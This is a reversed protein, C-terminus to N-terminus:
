PARDGEPCDIGALLMTVELRLRDRILAPIFEAACFRSNEM